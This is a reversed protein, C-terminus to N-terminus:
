LHPSSVVVAGACMGGIVMTLFIQGIVPVSSFLVVGGIGWCLGAFLSGCATLLPWNDTESLDTDARRYRLWLVWRGVTVLVVIAFWALPLMLAALHQLVILTLGANVINVTLAIPMLRFTASIQAARIKRLLDGAPVGTSD